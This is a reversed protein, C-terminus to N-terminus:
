PTFAKAKLKLLYDRAFREATEPDPPLGGRERSTQSLEERSNIRPFPEDPM